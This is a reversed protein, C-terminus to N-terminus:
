KKIVRIATNKGVNWINEKDVQMGKPLVIFHGKANEELRIGWTKSKIQSLTNQENQISSKLEEIEKKLNNRESIMSMQWFYLAGLIMIGVTLSIVTSYLMLRLGTSRVRNEADKVAEPFSALAAQASATSKEIESLRPTIQKTLEAPLERITKKAINVTEEAVVMLGYLAKEEDSSM